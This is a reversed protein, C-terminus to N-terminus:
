MKFRTGQGLWWDVQWHQDRQQRQEELGSGGRTPWAIAGGWHTIAGGLLAIAGGGGCIAGGAVASTHTSFMIVLSKIKMSSVAAKSDSIIRLNIWGSLIVCLSTSLMKLILFGAFLMYSHMFKVSCFYYWSFWLFKSVQLSWNRDNISFALTRESAVSM